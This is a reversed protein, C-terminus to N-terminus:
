AQFDLREGIGYLEQEIEKRKNMVATEEYHHIDNRENKDQFQTMVAEQVRDVRPVAPAQEARRSEYNVATENNVPAIYGM